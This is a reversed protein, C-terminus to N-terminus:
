QSQATLISESTGSSYRRVHTTKGGSKSNRTKNKTSRKQWPDIGNILLDFARAINPYHREVISFAKEYNKVYQVNVELNQQCGGLLEKLRANERKLRYVEKSKFYLIMSCIGLILVVIWYSPKM